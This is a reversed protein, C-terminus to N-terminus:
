KNIRSEHDLDIDLDLDVEIDIADRNSFIKDHTLAIIISEKGHM